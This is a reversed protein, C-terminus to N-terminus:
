IISADCILAARSMDHRAPIAANMARIHTARCRGCMRRGTANLAAAMTKPSIPWARLRAAPLRPACASRMSPLQAVLTAVAQVVTSNSRAQEEKLRCRTHTHRAPPAATAMGRAAAMPLALVPGSIVATSVTAETAATAKTRGTAMGNKERRALTPAGVSRSTEWGAANRGRPCQRYTYTM